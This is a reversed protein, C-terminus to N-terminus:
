INDNTQKNIKFEFRDNVKWNIIWNKEEDQNLERTPSFYSCVYGASVLATYSKVFDQFPHPQLHFIAM